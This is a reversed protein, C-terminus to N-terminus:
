EEITSAVFWFSRNTTDVFIDNFTISSSGMASSVPMRQGILMLISSCDPKADVVATDVRRSSECHARYTHYQYRFVYQNKELGVLYIHTSDSDARQKVPRPAGDCGTVLGVCLLVLAIAFHKM